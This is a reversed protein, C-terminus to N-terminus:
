WDVLTGIYWHVLTGIYWHVLRGILQLYGHFAFL